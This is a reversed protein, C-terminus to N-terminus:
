IFTFNINNPINKIDIQSCHKCYHENKKVQIESRGDKYHYYIQDTRKDNCYCCISNTLICFKHVCQKNDNYEIYKNSCDIIKDGNTYNLIIEKIFIKNQSRQEFLLLDNQQIRVREIRQIRLREFYDNDYDSWIDDDYESDCDSDNNNNQRLIFRCIPCKFKKLQLICSTHFTHNCITKCINLDTDMQELCIPCENNINSM